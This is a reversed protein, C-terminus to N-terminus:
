SVGYYEMIYELTTRFHDSIFALPRTLVASGPLMLMSLIWHSTFILVVGIGLLTCEGIIALWICGIIASLANLIVIPITFLEIIKMM